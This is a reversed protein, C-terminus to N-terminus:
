VTCLVKAIMDVMDTALMSTQGMEKAVIDGTMGHIYVALGIAKTLDENVLERDMGGAVIGAIIGALVDGSGATAMGANGTTNVYARNNCKNAFSEIGLIVSTSDKLVVNINYKNSYDLAAKVINEAIENASLNMLRSAEGIHPTIIVKDYYYETLSADNSIINLGDADIVLYKEQKRAEKLVMSVLSKATSGVGVGPGILVSDAWEIAKSINLEDIDNESDYFEVMAEPLMKYILDRNERHTIIKVLGAGVRFAATAALYAAGYMGSSGAIILVKGYTGKNSHAKRSLHKKVDEYEIMNYSEMEKQINTNGMCSCNLAEEYAHAPFGIDEVVVQGSIDKGKYLYMGAKKAGFTVTIDANIACGMIAGTDSNLGSSIDVAVVKLCNSTSRRAYAAENIKNIIQAFVGEVNRSLGIGFIGDVILDYEYELVKCLYNYAECEESTVTQLFNVGCNSAISRQLEFEESCRDENGVIVVDATYGECVLQRAVAVGDAGNNGTGCVCLIKQNTNLQLQKAVASQNIIGKILKSVGLAAREMLVMSPIGVTQITYTDVSKMGKGTLIRDM